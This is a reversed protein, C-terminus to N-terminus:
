LWRITYGTGCGVDVIRYPPPRGCTKAAALRPTLLELVRRGHQFEESLRQMECHVRVVLRDVYDVDRAGAQEPMHAVIQPAHRDGVAQLKEMGVNKAVPRRQLTAADFDVILDSIELLESHAM